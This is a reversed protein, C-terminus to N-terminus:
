VATSVAAWAILVGLSNTAAHALMPASLHGGWRRYACLLVGAAFTFLVALGTQALMGWAGVAAGVGANAGALGMSPLVHWLGFLASSVLTSRWWSGGVLGPLVGRFAIEELVVTGLPIRVLAAFLAGSLPGAARDDAFLERTAPLALGVLYIAAVSGFAVGGVVAGRRPRLRGLGLDAWSLGCWRAVVLLALAVGLNWPVYAEPWVRNSVVNSVALITIAAFLGLRVRLPRAARVPPGPRSELATTM